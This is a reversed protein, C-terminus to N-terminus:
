LLWGLNKLTQFYLYTSIGINNIAKLSTCLKIETDQKIFGCCQCFVAKESMEDEEQTKANKIDDGDRRIDLSGMRNCDRHVEALDSSPYSFIQELIM